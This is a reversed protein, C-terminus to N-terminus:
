ELVFDIVNEGGVKVERVLGALEPDRYKEPLLSRPLLYRQGPPPAEPMEVAMVTVRYWGPIAGYGSETRLSYSGDAQIEGAAPTGADPQAPSFASSLVGLQAPFFASSLACSGASSLGPSVVDPQALSVTASPGTSPLPSGASFPDTSQAFGWALSGASSQSRSDISTNATAFSWRYPRANARPSDWGSESTSM